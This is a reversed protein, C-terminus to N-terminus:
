RKRMRKPKPAPLGFRQQFKKQTIEWIGLRKLGVVVEHESELKAKFRNLLVPRIVKEPLKYAASKLPRESLIAHHTASFLVGDAGLENALRRNADLGALRLVHSCFIVQKPTVMVTGDLSFQPLDRESSSSGSEQVKMGAATSQRKKTRQRDRERRQRDYAALADRFEKCASHSELALSARGGRHAICNRCLRFYSIIPLLNAIGDTVWDLRGYMTVLPEPRKEEISAQTDIPEPCKTSNSRVRLTADKSSGRSQFAHWRQWEGETSALFDDFASFASVIGLDSVAALLNIRHDEELNWVPPYGWSPDAAKILEGLATQSPAASIQQVLAIGAVTMLKVTVNLEEHFHHYGQLPELQVDEINV